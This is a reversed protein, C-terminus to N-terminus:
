RLLLYATSGRAGVPAPRSTLTVPGRSCRQGRCSPPRPSSSAERSAAWTRPGCYVDGRTATQCLSHIEAVAVGQRVGQVHLELQAHARGLLAGQSRLVERSRERNARTAFARYRMNLASTSGRPNLKLPSPPTGAIRTWQGDRVSRQGSVCVWLGLLVAANKRLSCHCLDHVRTPPQRSGEEERRRGGRGVQIGHASDSAGLRRM